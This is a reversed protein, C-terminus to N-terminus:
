TPDGDEDLDDCKCESSMEHPFVFRGMHLLLSGELEALVRREANEKTYRGTKILKLYRRECTNRIADTVKEPTFRSFPM